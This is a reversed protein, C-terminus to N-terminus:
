KGAHVGGFSRIANIQARTFHKRLTPDEDKVEGYPRGAGDTKEESLWRALSEALYAQAQKLEKRPAGMPLVFPCSTSGARARVMGGHVRVCWVVTCVCM